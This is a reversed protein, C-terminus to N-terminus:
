VAPNSHHGTHQLSVSFCFPHTGMWCIIICHSDLHRIGGNHEEAGSTVNLAFLKIFVGQLWILM